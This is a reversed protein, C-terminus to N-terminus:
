SPNQVTEVTTRRVTQGNINVTTAAPDLYFTADANNPSLITGDYIATGSVSLSVESILAAPIPSGLGTLYTLALAVPDSLNSTLPQSPLTIQLVKSEPTPGLILEKSEGSILRVRLKKGACAVLDLNSITVARVRFFGDSPDQPNPNSHWEEGISVFINTDCATAQQSGQGFELNGTGVTVSAAFTSVLLPIAAILGAAIFVKSKRNGTKGFGSSLSTDLPSRM